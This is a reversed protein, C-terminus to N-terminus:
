RRAEDDRRPDPAAGARDCSPEERECFGHLPQGEQLDLAPAASPGRGPLVPLPDRQRPLEGPRRVRPLAAHALVPPQARAPPVGRAHANASLRRRLALSEVSTSCTALQTARAGSLRRLTRLSRVYRAGGAGTHRRASASAASRRAACRAPLGRPPRESTSARRACAARREAVHLCGRARDGGSDARGPGGRAIAHDGDVVIVEAPTPPDPSRSRPSRRSARWAIRKMYGM